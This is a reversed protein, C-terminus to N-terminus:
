ESIGAQGLVLAGSFFVFAQCEQVIRRQPATACGTAQAAYEKCPSIDTPGPANDNWTM